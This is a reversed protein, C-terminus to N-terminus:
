LEDHKFEEWNRAPLGLQKELKRQMRKMKFKIISYRVHLDLYAILRLTEDFGAYAIFMILLILLVNLGIFTESMPQEGKEPYWSDDELDDEYTSPEEFLEAMKQKQIREYLESLDADSSGEENPDGFRVTM